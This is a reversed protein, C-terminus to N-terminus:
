SASPRRSSSRRRRGARLRHGPTASDRPRRILRREDDDAIGTMAPHRHELGRERSLAQRLRAHDRPELEGFRTGCRAQERISGGARDQPQVRHALVLQDLARHKVAAFLGRPGLAGRGDRRARERLDRALESADNVRALLVEPEERDEVLERGRDGLTGVQADHLRWARDGIQEVFADGRRRPAREADRYGVDQGAARDALGLVQARAHSGGAPRADVDLHRRARRCRAEGDELVIASAVARDGGDLVGAVRTVVRALELVDGRSAPEVAQELKQEVLARLDFAGNWLRHGVAAVEIQAHERDVVDRGEHDHPCRRVLDRVQVQAALAAIDFGQALGDRLRHPFRREGAAAAHL